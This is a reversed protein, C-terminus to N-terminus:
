WRAFDPLSDFIRKCDQELRLAMAIEGKARWIMAQAKLSAYRGLNFTAATGGARVHAFTGGRWGSSQARFLIRAAQAPYRMLLASLETLALVDTAYGSPSQAIRCLDHCMGKDSRNM